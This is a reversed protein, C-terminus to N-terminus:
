IFAYRPISITQIKNQGYSPWENTLLCNRYASLISQYEVRGQAISEEDLQYVAVAYPPTKEIAIHIFIKVEKGTIASYGDLGLAAQRHYGYEYISRSYPKENACVTTKLDALIADFLLDPRAKCLVNQENDYWYLSKEPKAHRILKAADLHSMLSDHMRKLVELDDSGIVKKSSNKEWFEKYEKTNKNINPAIVYENWFLDNELVFKHFAKGFEYNPTSKEQYDNSLYKYWYHYPSRIFESIGSNSIGISSHYEENSIEYIGPKVEIDLLNTKLPPIKM